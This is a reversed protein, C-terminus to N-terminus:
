IGIGRNYVIAHLLTLLYTTIVNFSFISSYKMSTYSYNSSFIILKVFYGSVEPMSAFFPIQLKLASNRIVRPRSQPAGNGVPRSMLTYERKLLHFTPFLVNEQGM